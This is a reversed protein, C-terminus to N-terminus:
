RRDKICEDRFADLMNMLRDAAKVGYSRSSSESRAADILSTFALRCKGANLHRAASRLPAYKVSKRAKRTKVPM